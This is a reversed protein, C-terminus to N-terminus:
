ACCLLVDSGGDKGGGERIAGSVQAKSRGLEPGGGVTGEVQGDPVSGAAGEGGGGGM